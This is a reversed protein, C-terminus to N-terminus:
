GRGDHEEEEELGQVQPGRHGPRSRGVREHDLHGGLLEGPVHTVRARIADEALGVVLQDIGRGQVEDAEVARIRGGLVVDDQLVLEEQRLAARHPHAQAGQVDDVAEEQRVEAHLLVRHGSHRDLGPEDGLLRADVLDGAGLVAAEAVVPHAALQRHHRGTIEFRLDLFRRLLLVLMVWVVAAWPAWAAWSWAGWAKMQFYTKLLSWLTMPM